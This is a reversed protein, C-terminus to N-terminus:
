FFMSFEIILLFSCFLLFVFGVTSTINVCESKQINNSLDSTNKGQEKWTLILENQESTKCEYEM